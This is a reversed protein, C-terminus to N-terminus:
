QEVVYLKTPDFRPSLRPNDEFVLKGDVLSRNQLMIRDLISIALKAAEKEDSPRDIIELVTFKASQLVTGGREDGVFTSGDSNQQRAPTLSEYSEGVAIRRNLTESM